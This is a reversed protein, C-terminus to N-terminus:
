NTLVKLFKLLYISWEVSSVWATVQELECLECPSGALSLKVRWVVTKKMDHELM